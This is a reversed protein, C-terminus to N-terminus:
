ACMIIFSLLSVGRRNARKKTVICNCNTVGYWDVKCEYGIKKESKWDKEAPSETTWQATSTREGGLSRMDVAWHVVVLRRFSIPFAANLIPFFSKDMSCVFISPLRVRGLEHLCGCLTDKRIRSLEDGLCGRFFPHHGVLSVGGM